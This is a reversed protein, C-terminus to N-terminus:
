STGMRPSRGDAVQRGEASPAADDEAVLLDEVALALRAVTPAEFLATLPLDIGLDERLRAVVQAALLSPGGLAFFDDEAGIREVGVGLAEAW